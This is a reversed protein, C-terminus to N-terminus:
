ESGQSAAMSAGPWAAPPSRALGRSRSMLPVHSKIVHYSNAEASLNELRFLEDVVELCGLVGDFSGLNLGSYGIDIVGFAM